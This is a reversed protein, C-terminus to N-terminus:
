VKRYKKMNFEKVDTIKSATIFNVVKVKKRKRKIKYNPNIIYKTEGNTYVFKKEHDDFYLAMKNKNNPFQSLEEPSVNIGKAKKDYRLAHGIDHPRIYISSSALTIGEKEAFDKMRKEVKGIAFPEARSHGNREIEDIVDAIKQSATKTTRRQSERLIINSFGSRIGGSSKSM